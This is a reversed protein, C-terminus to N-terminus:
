VEYLDLYLYRVHHKLFKILVKSFNDVLFYESKNAASKKDFKVSKEQGVFKIM